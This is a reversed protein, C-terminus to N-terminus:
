IVIPWGDGEGEWMTPYFNLTIQLVSCTLIAHIMPWADTLLGNKKNEGCKHIAWSTPARYFFDPQTTYCYSICGGGWIVGM